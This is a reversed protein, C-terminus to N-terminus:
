DDREGKFFEGWKGVPCSQSAWWTKRSMVCGCSPHKCWGKARNYLPCGRCIELREARIEAPVKGPLKRKASQKVAKALNVAKRIAGPEVVEIEGRQILKEIWGEFRQLRLGPFHEAIEADTGHNYIRWQEARRESSSSRLGSFDLNAGLFRRLYEV